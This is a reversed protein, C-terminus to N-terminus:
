KPINIAILISMIKTVIHQLFFDIFCFAPCSAMRYKLPPPSLTLMCLWDGRWICPWYLPSLIFLEFIWCLVVCPMFAKKGKGYWTPTNVNWPVRGGWLYRQDVVQWLWSVRGGKIWWRDYDLGQLGTQNITKAYCTFTLSCASYNSPSSDPQGHISETLAWNM